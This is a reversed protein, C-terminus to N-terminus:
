ETDLRHNIRKLVEVMGEVDRQLDPSLEAFWADYDEAYLKDAVLRFLYPDVDGWSDAEFEEALILALKNPLMGM